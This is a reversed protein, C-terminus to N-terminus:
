LLACNPLNSFRQDPETSLETTSTHSDLPHDFTFPNIQPHEASALSQVPDVQDSAAEKSLPIPWLTHTHHPPESVEPNFCATVGSHIDIGKITFVGFQAAQAIVDVPAPDTRIYVWLFQGRVANVFVGEGRTIRMRIEFLVIDSLSTKTGAIDLINVHDLRYKVLYGHYSKIVHM